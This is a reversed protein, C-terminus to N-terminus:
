CVDLTDCVRQAPIAYGIGETEDRVDKMVTVGVVKGTEDLVPGGSNGPSIPASFQLYDAAQITRYSSVIGSTVTGALGNPSGLVLVPDGPHARPTVLTLAPLAQDVRIVALDNAESVDIIQGEYSKGARAVKVTRVGAVYVSEIVHYNTLLESEGGDASVVFGSGLYNGAYITFVSPAASHAVKSAAPHQEIERRTSSIQDAQQSMQARLHKLQQTTAAQAEGARQLSAHLDTVRRDVHRYAIFGAVVAALMAMVIMLVAASSAKVKPETRLHTADEPLAERPVDKAASAALPRPTRAGCARPCVDGDLAAGCATCYARLRTVVDDM